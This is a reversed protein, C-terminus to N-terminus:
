RRRRRRVTAGGMALGGLGLLALTTPEPVPAIGIGNIIWNTHNSDIRFEVYGNSNVMVQRTEQVLTKASSLDLADWALNFTTHDNSWEVEQDSGQPSGHDYFYLTVDYTGATLDGVRFTRRDASLYSSNKGYVFDSLLNVPTFHSAGRDVAFKSDGVLWGFTLGDRVASGTWTDNQLVYTYGTEINSADGQFDLYIPAATVQTALLCV